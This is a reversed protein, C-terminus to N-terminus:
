TTSLVIKKHPLARFEGPKMEILLISYSFRRSEKRQLFSRFLGRRDNIVIQQCEQRQQARLHTKLDREAQRSKAKSKSSLPHGQRFIEDIWSVKAFLEILVMNDFFSMKEFTM